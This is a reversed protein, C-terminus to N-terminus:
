EPRNQWKSPKLAALESAFTIFFCAALFSGTEYFKINRFLAISSLSLQNIFVPYV